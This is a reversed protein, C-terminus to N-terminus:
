REEPGPPLEIADSASPQARAATLVGLLTEGDRALRMAGLGRVAALEAASTAGLAALQSLCHGPLVVQADVGRAAATARRWTQLAKERARQANREATTPAAGIPRLEDSPVEGLAEGRAIAELLAEALEVHRAAVEGGVARLEHRTRPRRRAVALLVENGLVKFPPVDRRRAADERVLCLERLIARAVPPLDLGGKVRTWAPPSPPPEDAARALVYLCEEEIEAVIDRESAAGLLVDALAHLHLVDGALYRLAGDDLPRVGWDARQRDKPLSLGFHKDLLAALGQAPEGLFRACVSTDLVRALPLGQERLLRADFAADHLLKQPGEEGFLPALASLDRLALTDVIALCDPTALQLTCLRARYRFLGDGEVDLAISEAGALTRALATLADPTDILLPERELDV